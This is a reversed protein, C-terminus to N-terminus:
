IKYQFSQLYPENSIKYVFKYISSWNVGELFPFIDVWIEEETPKKHPHEVVRSLNRILPKQPDTEFIQKTGPTRYPDTSTPQPRSGFRNNKGAM